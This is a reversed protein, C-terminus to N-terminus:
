PPHGARLLDGAEVHRVRGAQDGAQQNLEAPEARAVDEERRTEDDADQRGAAAVGVAPEHTEERGTGTREAPVRGRGAGELLLETVDDHHRGGERRGDHRAVQVLAAAQLSDERRGRHQEDDGRGDQAPDRPRRLVVAEAPDV